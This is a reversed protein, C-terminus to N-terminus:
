KTAGTFTEMAAPLEAALQEFDTLRGVFIETKREDLLALTPSGDTYQGIQVIQYPRPQM